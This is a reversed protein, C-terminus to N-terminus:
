EAPEYYRGRKSGKPRLRGSQVLKQLLRFAQDETLNPFLQLVDGRTVKGYKYAMQMILEEQRVGEIGRRHVYATPRGLQKFVWASLHYVRGKKSGKAELLGMEVLEEVLSRARAEGQQILRAVEPVSLEGEDAAQRLVLLHPWGLTRRHRDQVELILRVFNLDAKGGPLVVKVTDETSGSYDPPRRGLGLVERFIRDIGRGTREVLGLRKFVDALLPNRPRPEVVLLNELTVGEVFGGPNSIVLGGAEPDIRVYVTGLVRYNRHVLANALAERFAEPPFLPIPVRYLGFTLEEETNYAKFLGEMREFLKLLPERYFENFAVGRDERLVQFAAEHTPMLRRIAGERGLVLLGGVTPVLRGEYTRALGLAQALEADPLSLLNQDASPHRQVVQRLREFELPDLDEWSADPLVQATYDQQRIEALRSAIEHLQLFRCEPRGRGAIYRRPVRGDSLGVLGSVKPVKIALVTGKSTPVVHVEVPVSPNTKNTILAQIQAPNVPQRSPHLGSITGDDEVGLLLWGGETNALCAVAEVLDAESLPADRKFELRLSEGEKILALLEAETMSAM